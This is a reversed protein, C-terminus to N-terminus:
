AEPSPTEAPLKEKKAPKVAKLWAPHLFEDLAKPDEKPDSLFAGHNMTRWYSYCAAHLEPDTIKFKGQQEQQKMWEHMADFAELGAQQFLIRGGGYQKYLHVQLKWRSLNWEAAFKGREGELPSLQMELALQKTKLREQQKETLGPKALQEKVQRLQRKLEPGVEQLNKEHQKRITALFADIEPQTPQLEKELKKRYQEWLPGLFLRVTEKRLEAAKGKADSAMLKLEDRYVPRGLVEGVQERKPEDAITLGASSVIVTALLLSRM